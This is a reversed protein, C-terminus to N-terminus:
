HATRMHEILNSYEQGCITCVPQAALRIIQRVPYAAALATALPVRVALRIIKRM